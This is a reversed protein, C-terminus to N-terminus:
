LQEIEGSLSVLLISIKTRKKALEPLRGWLRRYQQLDPLAIAYQAEPDDMRQLTEGLIGIFYNVRMPQRSGPGKAEIVWRESGRTAEVDIGPTRGWAVKVDWGDNSLWDSLVQKIEDESLAEVDHNKIASLTAPDPRSASLKEVVQKGTSELHNTIKSLKCRPCLQKSRTLANEQELFRCETNVTQRPKVMSASSLCDDCMAGLKSLTSVIKGQNTM